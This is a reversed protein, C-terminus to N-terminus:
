IPQSAHIPRTWSLSLHRATTFATIFSQTGYLAPLEKVLQPVTLTELLATSWAAIASDPCVTTKSSRPGHAIFPQLKHHKTWFGGYIINLQVKTSIPMGALSRSNWSTNLLKWVATSCVAFFFITSLRTASSTAPLLHDTNQALKVTVRAVLWHAPDTEEQQETQVRCTCFVRLSIVFLLANSNSIIDIQVVRKKLHNIKWTKAVTTSWNSM